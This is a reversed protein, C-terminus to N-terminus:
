KKLNKMKRIVDAINQTKGLLVRRVIEDFEEEIKFKSAADKIKNFLERYSKFAKIGTALADKQHYGKIEKKFGSVIKKKEINSLSIEPYYIKSGFVRAIKQITKPPPNVDSAIIIPDGFESIYKVIEEKKAYRKSLLALINGKTDLIAIGTTTGPDLGAIIARALNAGRIL